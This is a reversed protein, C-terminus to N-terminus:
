VLYRSSFQQQYPSFLTLTRRAEPGLKKDALQYRVKNQTNRMNFFVKNLIYQQNMLISSM